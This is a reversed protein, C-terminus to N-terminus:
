SFGSETQYRLHLHAMADEEERTEGSEHADVDDPPCPTLFQSLANMLRSTSDLIGM